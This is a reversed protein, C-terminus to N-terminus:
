KPIHPLAHSEIQIKGGEPTPITTPCSYDGQGQPLSVITPQPQSPQQQQQQQQHHPPTTQQQQQQQSLIQYAANASLNMSGPQIGPPAPQPQLAVLQQQTDIPPSQQVTQYPITNSITGTGDISYAM